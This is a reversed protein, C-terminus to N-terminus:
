IGDPKRMRMRAFVICPIVQIVISSISTSIIPGAVGIQKALLVGSPLAIVAMLAASMAQFRLGVTDTLYMGAPMHIGQVVLLLAFAVFIERSAIVSGSTAISSILPGISVLGVAGLAAIATSAFLSRSFLVPLQEAGRNAAFDGWLSRGGLQVVSLAPLYVLAAASYTAVDTLETTWALILRDAQFTVPLALSIALMPLATSWIQVRRNASLARSRVFANRADRVRPDRSGRVLCIWSTIVIGVLAAPLSLAYSAGSESLILIFVLTVVSTMGQIAM